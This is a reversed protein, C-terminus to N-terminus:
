FPTSGDNGRLRSDLIGNSSAQIGAKAPIGFPQYRELSHLNSLLDRAVQGHLHLVMASLVLFEIGVSLKEM